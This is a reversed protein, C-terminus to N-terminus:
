VFTEFYVLHDMTSRRKRFGSQAETNLLFSELFWVLHDNIIREMTKGISLPTSEKRAQIVSYPPHKIVLMGLDPFEIGFVSTSVEIYVFCPRELGNAAKIKM